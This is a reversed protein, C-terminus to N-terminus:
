GHQAAAEADSAGVHQDTTKDSKSTDEKEAETASKKETDEKALGEQIFQEVSEVSQGGVLKRRKWGDSTKQFMVLQPIPGGGTLRQALDRDRDPNVVAFVVKRLLGRERVRPLITKKMTQCPACWDTSVMVVMPTGTETTSRYAEAYTQADTTVDAGSLALAFQVVTACLMSTM